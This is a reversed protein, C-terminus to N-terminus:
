IYSLNTTLGLMIVDVSFADRASFANRTDGTVVQNPAGEKWSALINFCVTLVALFAIQQLRGESHSRYRRLIHNYAPFLM